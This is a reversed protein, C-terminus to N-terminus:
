DGVAALSEAADTQEAGGFWGAAVDRELLEGLRAVDAALEAELQARLEASIPPRRKESRVLRSHKVQRGLRASADGGLVRPLLRHRVFRAPASQVVSPALGRRLQHSVNRPAFDAPQWGADVDLFQLLERFAVPTDAVFDDFVIVHLQERPFAALWRELQEAYRARELYTGARNIVARRADGGRDPREDAALAAEFDEIPEAGHELRHGHMAYAMDVPNRLIAVIRARPEFDRILGPARRSFLYYTSAEGLRSEDRAEAFLALYKDLDTDYSFRRRPSPVDPSFFAPEKVPSM